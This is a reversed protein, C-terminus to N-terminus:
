SSQLDETLLYQIPKGHYILHEQMQANHAYFM